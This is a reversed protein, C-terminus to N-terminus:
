ETKVHQRLVSITEDKAELYAGFQKLMPQGSAALSNPFTEPNLDDDPDDEDSHDAVNPRRGGGGTRPTRAGSGDDSRNPSSAAGLALRRRASRGRPTSANGCSPSRGRRNPNAM